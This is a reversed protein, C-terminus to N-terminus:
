TNQASILERTHQNKVFPETLDCESSVSIQEYCIKLLSINNNKKKVSMDFHTRNSASVGTDGFTGSIFLMYNIIIIYWKPPVKIKSSQRQHLKDVKNNKDCEMHCNSYAILTDATNRTLHNFLCFQLSVGLALLVAQMRFCSRFVQITLFFHSRFVYFYNQVSM